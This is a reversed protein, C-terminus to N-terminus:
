AAQKVSEAAKMVLYARAVTAKVTFGWGDEDRELINAFAEDFIQLRALLEAQLRAADQLLSRDATVLDALHLAAVSKLLQIYDVVLPDEVQSADGQIPYFMEHIKQELSAVIVLPIVEQDNMPIIAQKLNTPRLHIGTEQLENQVNTPLQGKGNYPIESILGRNEKVVTVFQKLFAGVDTQSAGEPLAVALTFTKDKIISLTNILDSMQQEMVRDDVIAIRAQAHEKLVQDVVQHLNRRAEEVSMQVLQITMKAAEEPTAKDGELVLNNPALLRATAALREPAVSDARMESPASKPIIANFALMPQFIVFVSSATNVWRGAWDTFARQDLQRM